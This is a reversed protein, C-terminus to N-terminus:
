IVGRVLVLLLAALPYLFVMLWQLAAPASDAGGMQTPETSSKPRHPWSALVSVSLAALAILAALPWNVSIISTPTFLYGLAVTSLSGLAVILVPIPGGRTLVAIIHKSWIASCLGLLM